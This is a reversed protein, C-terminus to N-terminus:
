AEGHLQMAAVHPCSQSETRAFPLDKHLATFLQALPTEVLSVFRTPSANLALVTLDAFFLPSLLFAYLMFIIVHYHTM